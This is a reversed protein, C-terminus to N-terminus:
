EFTLAPIDPLELVHVSYTCLNRGASANHFRAMAILTYM